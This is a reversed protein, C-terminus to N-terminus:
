RAKLDAAAVAGLRNRLELQNDGQGRTIKSDSFIRGRIESGAEVGQRVALVSPENVVIGREEAFVLSNATGLDIALDSSFLGRLRRLLM